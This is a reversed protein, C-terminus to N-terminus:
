GMCGIIETIPRSYTFHWAHTSVKPDEAIVWYYNNDFVGTHITFQGHETWLKNILQYKNLEQETGVLAKGLFLKTILLEVANHFKIGTGHKKAEDM